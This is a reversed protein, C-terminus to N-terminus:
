PMKRITMKLMPSAATSLPRPMPTTCLAAHSDRRDPYARTAAYPGSIVASTIEDIQAHVSAVPNTCCPTAAGTGSIASMTIIRVTLTDCLCPTNSFLGHHVVLLDVEREVAMQMTHGSADVAAGIKTVEGSNEIQLGNLANPYDEIEALRLTEDAYRIIETLSPM